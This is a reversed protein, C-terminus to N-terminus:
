DAHLEAPWDVVSVQSEASSKEQIKHNLTFKCAASQQQFKQSQGKEASDMYKGGNVHNSCFNRNCIQWM